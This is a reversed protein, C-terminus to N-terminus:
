ETNDALVGSGRHVVVVTAQTHPTTRIHLHGAATVGEGPGDVTVTVPDLKEGDLTVLTAEGFGSWAAAAVRDFPVGGEGIRADDRGVKEVTVGAAETVSVPATGEFAASGDHLGKLRRLPTFRWNEERGGSIPLA